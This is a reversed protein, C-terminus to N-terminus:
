ECICSSFSFSGLGNQSRLFSFIDPAELPKAGPQVGLLSRDRGKAMAQKGKACWPSVLSGGNDRKIIQGEVLFKKFFARNGEWGMQYILLTHEEKMLVLLITGSYKGQKPILQISQEFNQSEKANSM